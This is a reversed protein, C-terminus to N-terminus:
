AKVVALHFAVLFRCGHDHASALHCPSTKSSILSILHPVLARVVCNQHHRPIYLISLYPHIRFGLLWFFLPCELYLLLLRLVSQLLERRLVNRHWWTKLVSPKFRVFLLMLNSTYQVEHVCLLLTWIFDYAVIQQVQLLFLHNILQLAVESRYVFLSRLYRLM